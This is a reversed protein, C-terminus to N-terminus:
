DRHMEKRVWYWANLCGVVVGILMLMLTWSYPGESRTDIWVGLGIGILTPIAVSWGVLGFLGLGFALGREGERRARQKRAEKRQVTDLLEDHPGPEERRAAPAYRPGEGEHSPRDPDRPRAM